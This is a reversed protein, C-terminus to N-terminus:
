ISQRWWLYQISYRLIQFWNQLTDNSFRSIHHHWNLRNFTTKYTQLTLTICCKSSMWIHSMHSLNAWFFIVQPITEDQGHLTLTCAYHYTIYYKSGTKILSIDLINSVISHTAWSQNWFMMLNVMDKM